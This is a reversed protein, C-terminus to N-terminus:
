AFYAFWLLGFLKLVMLSMLAAILDDLMIGLGGHIRADFWSIPWPKLADFFRFVAFAALWWLWGAPTFFLILMMAAIEDWVIGGYDPRRLVKETHGCIFIGVVFLVIAMILNQWWPLRLCLWLAALPLAPLTGFTGPAKPALGSGFGFGLWCVPHRLLWPWTPLVPQTNSTKSILIILDRNHWYLVMAM